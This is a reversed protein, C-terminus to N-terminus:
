DRRRLLAVGYSFEDIEKSTTPDAAYRGYANLLARLDDANYGATAWAYPHLECIIIARTALINRAGRLVALEAGEVDIKLVGPLPQASFYDDLSTTPVTARSASSVTPWFSNTSSDADSFFEAM